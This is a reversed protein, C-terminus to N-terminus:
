WRRGSEHWGGLNYMLCMGSYAPRGLCPNSIALGENAGGHAADTTQDDAQHGLVECRVGEDGCTLQGRGALEASSHVDDLAQRQAVLAADDGNEHEGGSSPNQISPIPDLDLYFNFFQLIM